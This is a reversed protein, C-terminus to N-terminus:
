LFPRIIIILTKCSRTRKVGRETRGIGTRDQQQELMGPVDQRLAKADAIGEMQSVPQQMAPELHEGFIDGNWHFRGKVGMNLVALM